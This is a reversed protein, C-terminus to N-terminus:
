DTSFNYSYWKVLSFFISELSGMSYLRKKGSSYKMEFYINTQRKIEIEIMTKVKWQQSLVIAVRRKMM